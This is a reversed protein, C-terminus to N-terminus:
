APVAAAPVRLHALAADASKLGSALTDGVSVGSRYSGALFVGPCDREVADM